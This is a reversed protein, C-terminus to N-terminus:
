VPTLITLQNNYYVHFQSYKNRILKHVNCNDEIFYVFNQELHPIFSDLTKIIAEDFHCGDDVVISFKKNNSIKFIYENNDEFQDFWFIKPKNKSFAGYSYLKKENDRFNKLDVDLGYINATSFLDCWISLGVGTLIGVEAINLNDKEIFPILYKSYDNAYNHNKSNMRDGGTMGGTKIQADTRPDYVSVENRKVNTIYGGFKSELQILINKLEDM